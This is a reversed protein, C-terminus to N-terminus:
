KHSKRNIYRNETKSYVIRQEKYLSEYGSLLYSVAIVICFFPMGEAGFLEFAIIFSTIPSNTAACFVGVMGCATCLALPLGFFAAIASGLTAGIFFSPVIEGGKYGACLTLCTFVIKLLFMEIGAPKDFSAKIIDTGLGIYADGGIIFYLIVVVCGGVAIRLYKNKFFKSYLEETLHMAKCFLVGALAFLMAVLVAKVSAMSYFSPVDTVHYPITLTRVNLFFSLKEAIFASFVCPVLASYYMVGVSIVEMPFLAAAMPTGLIAAFAASMCALTIIKRDSENLHIIRGFWDGISAGIQLAAGERGASGGFLHTIISSIMILPAIRGPMDNEDNRIVQLVVNTGANNEQGTIKYLAVILLGAVPLGLIIMRHATRFETVYQLALAFLAAIGGVVVGIIVSLFIWKLLTGLLERCTVNEQSIRNKLDDFKLKNLM